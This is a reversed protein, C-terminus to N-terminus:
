VCYATLFDKVNVFTQARHSIKAKIAPDLEGFTQDYKEIFFLPDYGFGNTGRRSETILGECSGDAVHMVQNNKVIAAVCRYRARRQKFPVGKLEQLLKDNNMEDTAGQGAYRASFIGPRGDLVDVELGSDEGITLCDAFKAAAHAKIVANDEFSKGDEVIPPIHPFDKLTLIEVPLDKLLDQVERFKGANTTALLIKM